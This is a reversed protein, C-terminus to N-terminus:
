KTCTDTWLQIVEIQRACVMLRTKGKGRGRLVSLMTFILLYQGTEKYPNNPSIIQHEMKTILNSNKFNITHTKRLESVSNM